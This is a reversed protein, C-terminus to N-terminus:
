QTPFQAFYEQSALILEGVLELNAQGSQLLNLWGQAGAADPQRHLFNAYYADIQILRAESSTVFSDAVAARSTGNQLAQLWAALGASDPSRGLIDNYLATVFATNTPHDASYEASGLIQEIVSEESEGNLMANVFFTLGAPDASRHLYTAYFHEVELNRHEASDWIATVVQQRTFGKSSRSSGSSCATRTQWGVWCM